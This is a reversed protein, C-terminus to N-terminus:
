YGVSVRETRVGLWGNAGLYLQQVPQENSCKRNPIDDRQDILNHHLTNNPKAYCYVYLSAPDIYFTGEHIIRQSDAIELLTKQKNAIAKRHVELLIPENAIYIDFKLAQIVSDYKDIDLTQFVAKARPLLIGDDITIGTEIELTIMDNLEIELM